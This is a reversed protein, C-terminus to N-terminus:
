VWFVFQVNYLSIISPVKDSIESLRFKKTNKNKMSQRNGDANSDVNCDANHQESFVFLHRAVICPLASGVGCVVSWVLSCVTVSRNALSGRTTTTV